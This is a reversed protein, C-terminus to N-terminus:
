SSIRWIFITNYVNAITRSIVTVRVVKARRVFEPQIANSATSSSNGANNRIFPFPPERWVMEGWGTHPVDGFHVGSLLHIPNVLGQVTAFSNRSMLAPITM